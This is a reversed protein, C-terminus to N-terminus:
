GNPSLSYPAPSLPCFSALSTITVQGSLVNNEEDIEDGINNHSDIKVWYTHPEVPVGSRTISAWATIRGWACRDRYVSGAKSLATPADPAFDQYNQVLLSSSAGAMESETWM